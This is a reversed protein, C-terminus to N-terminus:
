LTMTLQTVPIQIIEAPSDQTQAVRDSGGYYSYILAVLLVLAFETIQCQPGTKMFNLM